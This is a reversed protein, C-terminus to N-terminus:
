KYITVERVCASFTDTKCPILLLRSHELLGKKPALFYGAYIAANIHRPNGSEGPTSRPIRLLLTGGPEGFGSGIESWFIVNEM